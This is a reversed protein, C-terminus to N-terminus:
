CTLHLAAATRSVEREANYLDCAEPTNLARLEIGREQLIEATRPLVRMRGYAGRGVVLLELEADLVAALDEPALEHGRVRRWRPLVGNPLLIIDKTYSQGDIVIQGFRYSEIQPGVM